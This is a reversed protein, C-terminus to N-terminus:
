ITAPATPVPNFAVPLLKSPNVFDASELFWEPTFFVIIFFTVLNLLCLIPVIVHWYVSTDVAM